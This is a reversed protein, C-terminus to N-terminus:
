YIFSKSLHKVNSKNVSIKFDLTYDGNPNEDSTSPRYKMLDSTSFYISM